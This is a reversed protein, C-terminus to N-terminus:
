VGAERALKRIREESSSLRGEVRAVASKTQESRKDLGRLQLQGERLSKQMDVLTSTQLMALAERTQRGEARTAVLMQQLAAIQKGQSEIVRAALLLHYHVGHEACGDGLLVEAESGERFSSDGCIGDAPANATAVAASPPSVPRPLPRPPAAPAAAAAKSAAECAVVLPDAGSEDFDLSEEAEFDLSHLRSRAAEPEPM